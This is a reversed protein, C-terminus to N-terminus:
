DFEGRKIKAVAEEGAKKIAKRTTPASPGSVADVGAAISNKEIIKAAAVSIISAGYGVTEDKGSVVVATIVGELMTVTVSIPDGGELSGFGSATATATGSAKTGEDDTPCATFLLGLVLSVVLLFVTLKKAM